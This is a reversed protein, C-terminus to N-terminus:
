ERFQSGRQPRIGQEDVLERGVVKELLEKHAIKVFCKNALNAVYRANM